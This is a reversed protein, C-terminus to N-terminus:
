RPKNEEIARSMRFCGRSRVRAMIDPMEKAEILAIKAVVVRRRAPSGKLRLGETIPTTPSVPRAPARMAETPPPM